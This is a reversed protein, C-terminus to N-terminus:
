SGPPFPLQMLVFGGVIAVPLAVLGAAVPPFAPRPVPGRTLLAALTPAIVTWLLLLLLAAAGATRDAAVGGVPLAAWNVAALALGVLFAGGGLLRWRAGPRGYAVIVTWGAALAAPLLALVALAGNGRFSWSDAQPGYRATLFMLLDILAGVIAGAPVVVALM